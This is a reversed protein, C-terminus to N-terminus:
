LCNIDALCVFIVHKDRQHKKNVIYRQYHPLFLGFVMNKEDLVFFICFKNPPNM